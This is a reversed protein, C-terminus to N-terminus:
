ESADDNENEYKWAFNSAVRFADKEDKVSNVVINQCHLEDVIRGCVNIQGDERYVVLSNCSACKSKGLFCVLLTLKCVESSESQPAKGALGWDDTLMVGM